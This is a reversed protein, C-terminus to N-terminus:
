PKESDPCVCVLKGCGPCGQGYKDILAKNLDVGAVNAITTLWALVDAFEEEQEKLTGSRLATALEGFEEALWMFTGAIGREKDKELYMQAILNQFDPISLARSQTNTPEKEM